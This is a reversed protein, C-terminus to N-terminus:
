ARCLWRSRPWSRLVTRYLCGSNSHGREGAPRPLVFAATALAGLGLVKALTTVSQVLGGSRVQSWQLLVLLAVIAVAVGEANVCGRVALLVSAYDAILLALAAVIACEQIWNVYGVFFGLFDGFARHAYVYAPGGASPIMAGLECFATAGLLANIGGFIWVAMILPASPLLAAIDGPSACYAPVEITGGVAIALGFAVGFIRLLHGPPAAISTKSSSTQM